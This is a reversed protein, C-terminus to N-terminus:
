WDDGKKLGSPTTGFVLNLYNLLFKMRPDDFELDDNTGDSENADVMPREDLNESM